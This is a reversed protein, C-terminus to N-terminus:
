SRSGKDTKEKRYSEALLSIFHTIEQQGGARHVNDLLQM